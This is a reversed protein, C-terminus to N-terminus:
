YLQTDHRQSLVTGVVVGKFHDANHAMKRLNVFNEYMCLWEILM